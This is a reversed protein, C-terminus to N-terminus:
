LKSFAACMPSVVLLLASKSKVIKEGKARMAPVNFDWPNGFQDCTTLDMALGPIMGMKEAMGTVRKPSYAESVHAQTVQQGRGYLQVARRVEGLQPIVDMNGSMLWEVLGVDFGMMNLGMKIDKDSQVAPGEGSGQAETMNSKNPQDDEVPLESPPRLSKETRM